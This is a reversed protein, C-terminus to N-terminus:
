NVNFNFEADLMLQNIAIKDREIGIFGQEVLSKCQNALFAFSILKALTALFSSLNMVQHLACVYNVGLQIPIIAFKDKNIGINDQSVHSNFHNVM